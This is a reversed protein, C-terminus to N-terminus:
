PRDIDSDGHSVLWDSVVLDEVTEVLGKSAYLYRTEPRRLFGKQILREEIFRNTIQISIADIGLEQSKAICGQIVTDLSFKDLACIMDILHIRRYPYLKSPEDTKTVVTGILRNERHIDWSEFCQGPQEIYKWNLYSSDRVALCGVSRSMQAWISDHRKSFHEIKQLSINQSSSPKLSHRRARGLSLYAAALRDIGIPFKDRLVRDPRNMFVYIHLPCIQKWGLSDLIRRIESTQGLSLAIPLDEEAELMIQSGVGKQRYEELVMTDVFWATVLEGAKTKLKTFQAGMHGVIKGKSRALWVQPSEGLRDASKQFMWDWRMEIWLPNRRPWAEKCFAMTGDHLSPQYRILEIGDVMQARSSIPHSTEAGQDIRIVGLSIISAIWDGVTEYQMLRPPTTLGLQKRIHTAFDVAGLSDLGIDVMRTSLNLKSASKGIFKELDRSLLRVLRDKKEDTNSCQFLEKAWVASPTQGAPKGLNPSPSPFSDIRASSENMQAIKKPLADMIGQALSVITPEGALMKGPAIGSNKRLRMSLEVATISDLGLKYLNRDLAIRDETAKLVESLEKRVLRQLEPLQEHAQMGELRALWLEKTSSIARSQKAVMQAAGVTNNSSEGNVSDFFPRTRRASMVSVFRDWKTDTIVANSAGIKICRDIAEIAQAPVLGEMGVRRYEELSGIDAMGGQAWPGFNLVTVPLEHAVRWQGLVDLFANAAAYLFRQPAGWVSAISSALVFRKIPHHMSWLHLNWAGQIKAQTVRHIDEMSWQAIPALFDVGATHFVAEISKGLMEATLKEIGKQSSVDASVLLVAVGQSGWTSLIKSQEQTPESRRGVLVLENAGQAVAYQALRFGIAGLGGTILVSRGVLNEGAKNEEAQGLSSRTKNAIRDSDLRHLRPVWAQKSLLIVQDEPIQNSILRIAGPESDGIDIAGGWYEPLEISAVRAGGWLVAAVPSLSPSHDVLSAGQTVLWFVSNAQAHKADYAQASKALELAKSFAEIQSECVKQIQEASGLTDANDPFGSGAVLIIRDQGLLEVSPIGWDKKDRNWPVLRVSGGSHQIQDGLNKGLAFDGISLILWQKPFTVNTTVSALTQELADSRMWRVNYLLKNYLRTDPISEIPTSTLTHGTIAHTSVIEDMEDLWIRRNSFEYGPVSVRRPSYPSEARQWDIPYGDVVLQAVGQLIASWDKQGRRASSLWRTSDSINPLEMSRVMTTLVPHPGIELFHSVSKSALTEMAQMFRVPQRVQDVWYRPSALDKQVSQGTVTSIFEVNPVGLQLKTVVSSFEELMPEMLKSHFAHSVKLAQTKIGTTEAREVFKAIQPLSGSIVTQNPGNYSAISLDVGAQAVIAEVNQASAAVSTMGGGSRLQQMLEGRSVVLQLADDLSCGGAICYAAIEGISHGLVFDPKVGYSEWLKFLGYQAIFIAPQTFRTQHILPDQSSDKEFLVRRIPSELRPDILEACQDVAQRFIPSERYFQALMGPYQSGQGTFLYAIRNSKKWLNNGWHLDTADFDSETSNLESLSWRDLKDAAAQPDDVIMAARFEFSKRGIQNSYLANGISEHNKQKLFTSWRKAQLQLAEPSPAQLTLLYSSREITPIQSPTEPAEELVIHANSGGVGFSNVAARRPLIEHRNTSTCLVELPNWSGAQRQIKFPLNDFPIQPNPQDSTISPLLTKHHLQLAAKAVGVLGAGAELHGINPKISGIGTNAQCEIDSDWLSPDCYAMELGRVEIPDGLQTGTGHTEVYGITRPDVEADILAARIALSQAVPNPATFGVSGAGVSLGTGKIVAYIRDTDRKADSLPKLVISVAGEGIVTGDAQDGFPVCKGTPTLIGLNGLQIIRSPDVIVNVGAVIASTCDGRRISECAFHLATASSSCATDIALSPGCLGLFQSIRNAFSFGEWCRYVSGSHAAIPNAFRGYCQYMYGVFVGTTKNVDPRFGGADEIAHWASELLLRMQPDMYEAERPSVGFFEPDFESVSPLLAAFYPTDTQLEGAFDQRQKPVRLVKSESHLLTEWLKDIGKGAATYASIGVIAIDRNAQSASESDGPINSLRSHGKPKSKARRLERIQQIIESVSRHEFLLTPPLNPLAKSLAVTIGVIQLSDCGLSDLRDVQLVSEAPRKLVDAFVRVVTDDIGDLDSASDTSDELLTEELVQTPTDYTDLMSSLGRLSSYNTITQEIQTERRRNDQALTSTSKTNGKSTDNDAQSELADQGAVRYTLNLLESASTLGEFTTEQGVALGLTQELFHRAPRNKDTPRYQWRVDACGRALSRRAIEAVIRHEVGRGLVRCSLLFTDVQYISNQNDATGIFLGVVGYDGFRDRVSLTCVDSDSRTSLAQIESENRRITTLNFQNTRLTLQSARALDASQVNTFDVVLELSDIFDQFNSANKQVQQREFEEKYMRTRERDEKTISNLDLEWLHDVLSQARVEDHPWQITLVNPCGARVEACEVPNDDIFVFSDLGLNLEIALEQINQSKPMWNIKAAVLEERTLLFDARTDFVQWVDQPENKSALCLLVGGESLEKLKGILKRHSSSISIGSAGLEGVVGSWLTNDCDLVIAKKPPSIKRSFFRVILTALFAFYEDKYPIHGIKNRLPDFIGHEPVSYKGHHDRASWVSVGPVCALATVIEQHIQSETMKGPFDQKENPCVLVLTAGKAFTRHQRLANVFESAADVIFDDVHQPDSRLLDPYEKIWDGIRLLVTSGHQSRSVESSPNLLEQLIQNYPAIHGDIRKELVDSWADFVQKIPDLTFNAVLSITLDYKSSQNKPWKFKPFDTLVLLNDRLSSVPESIQALTQRVIALSADRVPIAGLASTPTDNWTTQLKPPRAILFRIGPHEKSAVSLSTELANKVSVYDSFGSPTEEVFSSSIGVISGKADSVLPLFSHLPSLFLRINRNLYGLSNEVDSARIAGHIPPECANLVLLDLNQRNDRFSKALHDCFAPDGINGLVVDAIGGLSEIDRCIADTTSSKNRSVLMVRYNAAAIGIAIEAGLGRSAGCILAIKEVPQDQPIKTLMRAYCSTSTLQNAFRVYCQIQCSAVPIMDPTAVDLQMELIRFNEDYNILTLRYLLELTAPPDGLFEVSLKTFLSALGPVKMGVVYSCLGLVQEQILSFSSNESLQHEGFRHLGFSVAGTRFHDPTWLTPQDDIGSRSASHKASQMWDFSNANNKMGWSAVVDMQLSQDNSVRGIWRDSSTEFVTTYTKDPRVEARFQVDICRVPNAFDRQDHGRSRLSEILVLMGHCITGGFVSEKAAVPDVHIPNCDGTWRAFDLVQQQTVIMHGTKETPFNM